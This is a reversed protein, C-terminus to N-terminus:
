YRKKLRFRGQLIKMEHMLQEFGPSENGYIMNEQMERYDNQFATQLDDPPVFSISLHDLRSYDAWSTKIYNKRHTILRAYLDHDALAESCVQDKMSVLDYFHRSM